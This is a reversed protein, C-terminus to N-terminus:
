ITSESWYIKLILVMYTFLSLNFRLKSGVTLLAMAFEDKASVDFSLTDEVCPEHDLREDDSVYEVM